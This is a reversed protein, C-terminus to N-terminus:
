KSVSRPVVEEFEKALEGLCEPCLSHTFEAHSHEEVFTEVRLWYGHDDRVKKCQGCIPVLGHLTKVQEFSTQLEVLLREKDQERYHDQMRLKEQSKLLGVLLANAAVAVVLSSLVAIGLNIRDAHELYRLCAGTWLGVTIIESALFYWLSHFILANIVVALGMSVHLRWPGHLFLQVLQPMLIFSMGLAGMIQYHKPPIRDWKLAVLIGVLLVVAIATAGAIVLGVPRPYETLYYPILMTLFCAILFFGIRYGQRFQRELDTRILQQFADM